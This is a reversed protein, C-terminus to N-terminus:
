GGGSSGAGGDTSGLLVIALGTGLACGLVLVITKSPSFSKVKVMKVDSALVTVVRGDKLVGVLKERALAEPRQAADFICETSDATMVGMIDPQDHHPRKHYEELPIFRASSCGGLYAIFCVLTVMGIIRNGM